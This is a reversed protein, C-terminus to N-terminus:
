KPTKSARVEVVIASVVSRGILKTRKNSPDKLPPKDDVSFFYAYEGPTLPTVYTWDGNTGRDMPKGKWGTFDARIEVKRAHANHYRFLIRRAGSVDTMAAAPATATATSLAPTKTPTGTSPTPFFLGAAPKASSAPLRRRVYNVLVFLSAGILLLDFVIFLGLFVKKM